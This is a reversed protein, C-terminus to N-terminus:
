SRKKGCVIRMLAVFEPDDRPDQQAAKAKAEAQARAQGLRSAKVTRIFSDIDRKTARYRPYERTTLALQEWIRNTLKQPVFGCQRQCDECYRYEEFTMLSNPRLMNYAIEQITIRNLCRSCICGYHGRPYPFLFSVDTSDPTM